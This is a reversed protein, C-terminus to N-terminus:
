FIICLPFNSDAEFFPIKSAGLFKRKWKNKQSLLVDRQDRVMNIVKAHPFFHLIEEVYFINHPTHECAISSRNVKTFENLFFLFIEIPKDISRESLLVSAEEYYSMYKKIYFISNKQVCILKALLITCKKKSMSTTLPHTCVRSFFHLERFTFISANNELIRSMMTTGSRSSGVIFVNNIKNM